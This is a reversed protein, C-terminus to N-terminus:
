ALAVRAILFILAECCCPLGFEQSELSRVIDVGLVEWGGRGDLHLCLSSSSPARVGQVHFSEKTNRSPTDLNARNHRVNINKNTKGHKGNSPLPTLHANANVEAAQFDHSSFIFDGHESM